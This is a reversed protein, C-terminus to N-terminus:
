RGPWRVWAVLSASLQELDVRGEVAFLVLHEAELLHDVGTPEHNAGSNPPEIADHERFGRPGSLASFPKPCSPRREAPVALAVLPQYDSARQGFCFPGEVRM